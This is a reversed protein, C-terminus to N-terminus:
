IPFRTYIIPIPNPRKLSTNQFSNIQISEVLKQPTWSRRCKQRGFLDLLDFLVKFLIRGLKFAFIAHSESTSRLYTSYFYLNFEFEILCNDLFYDELECIKKVPTLRSADHKLSLTRLIDSCAFQPISSDSFFADPTVYCYTCFKNIIDAENNPAILLFQFIASM